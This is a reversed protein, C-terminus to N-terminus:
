FDDYRDPSVTKFKTVINKMIKVGKDCQPEGGLCAGMQPRATIKANKGFTFKCFNLHFICNNKCFIQM